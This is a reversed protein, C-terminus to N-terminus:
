SESAKQRITELMNGYEKDLEIMRTVMGALVGHLRVLYMDKIEGLGEKTLARNIDRHQLVADQVSVVPVIGNELDFEEAEQSLKIGREGAERTIWRSCRMICLVYSFTRDDIGENEICGNDTSENKISKYDIGENETCENDICENDTSENETSKYDISEYDISEDIKDNASRHEVNRMAYVLMNCVNRFTQMILRKKYKGFSLAAEVFHKFMYEIRQSDDVIMGVVESETIEGIKYGFECKKCGAVMRGYAVSYAYAVDVDTTNMMGSLDYRIANYFRGCWMQWLCGRDIEETKDLYLIMSKRVRDAVQKKIRDAEKESIRIGKAEVKNKNEVNNSVCNKVLYCNQLVFDQIDSCKEYYRKFGITDEANVYRMFGCCHYRIAEAVGSIEGEKLMWMKMKFEEPKCQPLLYEKNHGFRGCFWVYENDEDSTEICKTDQENNTNQCCIADETPLYKKDYGFHGLFWTYDKYQDYQPVECEGEKSSISQKCAAEEGVSSTKDGEIEQESSIGRQCVANEEVHSTKSGEIEQKNSTNQQSGEIEKVKSIVYHEVLVDKYCKWWEWAKERMDEVIDTRSKIGLFRLSRYVNVIMHKRQEDTLESNQNDIDFKVKKIKDEIIKVSALIEDGIRDNKFMGELMGQLYGYVECWVWGEKIDESLALNVYAENNAKEIFKERWKDQVM